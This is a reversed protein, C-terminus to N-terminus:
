SKWLFRGENAFHHCIGQRVLVHAYKSLVGSPHVIAAQSMVKSLRDYLRQYHERYTDIVGYYIDNEFDTLHQSPTNDRYYRKFADAEFYRNRHLKLEEGYEVHALVENITKFTNGTADNYVDLLQQLYSEENNQIMEPVNSHPFQGPDEGFWDVLLPKIHQDRLMDTTEWVHVGSFDFRDIAERIELSLPVPKNRVLRPECYQSWMELMSTKLANPKAVLTQGKRGIGKPAIFIYQTPLSYEGNASHYLIKGLEKHLDPESIKSNLQKCQYNHWEGEFKKSTKYGVVDRGMDGSGSFRQVGQYARSKHNLMWDYVFEELQNDDLATLHRKYDVKRM